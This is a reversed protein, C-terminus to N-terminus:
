ALGTGLVPCAMQRADKDMEEVHGVGERRQRPCDLGLTGRTMTTGELSIMLVGVQPTASFGRLSGGPDGLQVQARLDGFVTENVNLPNFPCGVVLSVLLFLLM